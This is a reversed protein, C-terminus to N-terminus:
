CSKAALHLFLVIKLNNAQKKERRKDGLKEDGGRPLKARVFSQQRKISVQLKGDTGSQYALDKPKLGEGRGGCLKITQRMKIEHVQFAGSKESCIM